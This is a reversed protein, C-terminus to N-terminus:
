AVGRLLTNPFLDEVGVGLTLSLILLRRPTLNTGQECEEIHSVPCGIKRALEPRSWRRTERYAQIRQGIYISITDNEQM